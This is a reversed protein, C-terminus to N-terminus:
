ESIRSDNDDNIGSLMVKMGLGLQLAIAKESLNKTVLIVGNGGKIGGTVEELEEDSLESCEEGLKEIENKINNLEEKSKM